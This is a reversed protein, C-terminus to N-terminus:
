ILKKKFEDYREPYIQKFNKKLDGQEYDAVVLVFDDTTNLDFEWLIDKLKKGCEVMCKIASSEKGKLETEQNFLTFLKQTETDMKLADQELIHEYEIPNWIIWKAEKGEEEIWKTRQAETGYAIAPPFMDTHYYHIYICFLKEEVKYSALTHKLVDFLKNSALESLKAYNLSKDPKKYWLHKGEQITELIGLEDYTYVFIRNPVPQNTYLREMLKTALRKNEYQYTYKIWGDKVVTYSTSLVGNDYLFLEVNDIPKEPSYHFRYSEIKDAQRILFTEYYLGELDIYQREIIIEGNPDIGYQLKNKKNEPEEKLIRGKSFKHQEFYFPELSLLWSSAWFWQVVNDQTEKRLTKYRNSAQTFQTQLKHITEM